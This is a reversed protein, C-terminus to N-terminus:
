KNKIFYRNTKNSFLVLKGFLITNRNKTENGIKLNNTLYDYNEVLIYADEITYNNNIKKILEENMLKNYFFFYEM